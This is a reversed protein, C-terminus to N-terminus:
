LYNRRGRMCSATQKPSNHIDKCLLNQFLLTTVTSQYTQGNQWYMNMLIICNLLYNQIESYARM